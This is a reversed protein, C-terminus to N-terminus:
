PLEYLYDYGEILTGGLQQCTKHATTDDAACWWKGALPSTRMNPSTYAITFIGFNTMKPYAYASMGTADGEDWDFMWNETKQPISIDLEDLSPQAMIKGTQALWVDGATVMAKVVIKAEAVRAKLVAKQYQPLAIAALIGIILVVVLLEILTFGKTFCSNKVAQKM